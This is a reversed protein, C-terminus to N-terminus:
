HVIAATVSDSDCRSLQYKLRATVAAVAYGPGPIHPLNVFSQMLRVKHQQRSDRSSTLHSGAQYKFQQQQAEAGQSYHNRSSSSSSNQGHM